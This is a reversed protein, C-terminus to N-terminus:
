RGPAPLAAELNLLARKMRIGSGYGGLGGDSAVVRHCPVVIALPNAGCALGVARYGDTRCREAVQRYSRTEGYPIDRLARWVRQQFPTGASADLPTQFGRAERRFYAGLEEAADRVAKPHREARAGFRDQIESRFQEERDRRTVAALGSESAALWLRGVPTEVTDYYLVQM